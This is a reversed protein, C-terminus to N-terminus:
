INISKVLTNGKWLEVFYVRKVKRSDLQDAKITGATGDKFLATLRVELGKLAIELARRDIM